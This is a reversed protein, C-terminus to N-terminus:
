PVVWVNVFAPLSDAGKVTDPGRMDTVRLKFRLLRKASVRPAVFTAKPSNPDLLSVKNGRVQTWEYRLPDGDADTSGLANLLITAGGNVTQDSGARATPVENAEMDSKVVVDLRGERGRNKVTLTAKGNGMVRLLGIPYSLVVKENSSAYSNGSPAGSLLRTRGDAFQGIVPIEAIKGQTDLRWPKEVDFDIGTLESPPEVQVLIEDFEEKGSLRGRTVEGVALLRMTGIVGDPVVLTGGFPPTSSGTAALGLQAQQPVLPEDGLRYWYYLVRSVGTETGLDVTVDLPQGAKLVAAETPSTIRFALAPVPAFSLCFVLALSVWPQRPLSRDM